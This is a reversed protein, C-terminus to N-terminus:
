LYSETIHKLKSSKIYQSYDRLLLNMKPGIYTQCFKREPDKYYYNLYEASNTKFSVLPLIKTVLPKDFDNQLQTLIKTIKEQQFASHVYIASRYKSRLQHTSTSSHTQLHISVLTSLYIEKEEFHVLVGESFNSNSGHSAIWGQEVNVVGILSQFVAETCWHCGGGFGIKEM